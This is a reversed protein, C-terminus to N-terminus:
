KTRRRAIFQQSAKRDKRTRHGMAPKGWPTKPGPMGIPAKGEGGGHPHDRPNMASGRVTPRWGRHRNRGAKGLKLNGHEVNGVQGITAVCRSHIRRQEGSPLRLMVYDGEKAILQAGTGASRVMQAGKGPIIEIAHVTTGAPIASLPLACGVRLEAKLGASVSDGVKLGVPALIYGKVGDEYELLALRATRIPDYEIATVKAPVDVRRKFEVIRYAQKQGGGQHRVTLRGQNNRGGQRRLPRTLSKEPESKTIEDFSASTAGRRGPSTPKYSKIPM